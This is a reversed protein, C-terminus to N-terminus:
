GRPHGSITMQGDNVIIEDIFLNDIESGLQSVLAENLRDSFQSTISDPMPLPGLTASKIQFGPRGQANAQLIVGLTFPVTVGSQDIKGQFTVIGDRLLVQPEQIAPEEMSKLEIAILSTLQTENFTIKVPQQNQLATAASLIDEQMTSIAQTSVPIPTAVPQPRTSPMNCALMATGLASLWILLTPVIPIKRLHTKDPLM